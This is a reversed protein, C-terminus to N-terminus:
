VLTFSCSIIIYYHICNFNSSGGVPNQLVLLLLVWQFKNSVNTIYKLPLVYRINDECDICTTEYTGVLTTNYNYTCCRTM